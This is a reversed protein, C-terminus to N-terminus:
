RNVRKIKKYFNEKDLALETIDNLYKNYEKDEFYMKNRAYGNIGFKEILFERCVEIIQDQNLEPSYSTRYSYCRKLTFEVDTNRDASSVIRGYITRPETDKSARHDEVAEKMVIIQEKSFFEKLKKDEFLIQASIIEHKKADIHHAIDHYAAIVYVMEYDINEITEAFQLSRRIVYKIHNIGHGKENLKYEEFIEKEIYEKIEKRINKNMNAEM